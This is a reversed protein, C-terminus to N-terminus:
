DRNEILLEEAQVCRTLYMRKLHVSGCRRLTIARASAIKYKYSSVPPRRSAIPVQPVLRSYREGPRHAYSQSSRNPSRVALEAFTSSFRVTVKMPRRECRWCRRPVHWWGINSEVLRFRPRANGTRRSAPIM